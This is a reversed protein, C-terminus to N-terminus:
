ITEWHIDFLYKFLTKTIWKPTKVVYWYTKPSYEGNSYFSGSDFCGFRWRGVYKPPTHVPGTIKSVIDESMYVKDEGLGYYFPKDRSKVTGIKNNVEDIVESDNNPNM